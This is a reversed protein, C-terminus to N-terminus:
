LDLLINQLLLLYLEDLFYFLGLHTYVSYFLNLSCSAFVPLVSILVSLNVIIPPSKFVREWYNISCTSLFDTLMYLRVRGDACCEVWCHHSACEKWNCVFCKSLCVM